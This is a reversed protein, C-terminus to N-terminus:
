ILARAAAQVSVITNIQTDQQQNQSQEMPRRNRSPPRNAANAEFYYKEASHNTKGCTECPPDVTRPKKDNRNNSSNSVTKNSHTNFNTQCSNINNNSNNGAGNKDTDNHYSEKKLQCCQNRLPGAKQMSRM